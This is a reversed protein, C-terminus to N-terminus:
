SRRCCSTGWKGTVTTNLPPPPLPPQPLRQHTVRLNDEHRAQTHCLPIRPRTKYAVSSGMEKRRKQATQRKHVRAM